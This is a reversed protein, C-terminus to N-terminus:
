RLLNNPGSSALDRVLVFLSRPRGFHSADSSTVHYPIPRPLFHRRATRQFAVVSVPQSAGGVSLHFVTAYSFVTPNPMRTTPRGRISHTRFNRSPNASRGNSHSCRQPSLGPGRPSHGPADPGARHRDAPHCNALRSDRRPWGPRLWGVLRWLLDYEC